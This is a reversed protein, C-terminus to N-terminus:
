LKIVAKVRWCGGASRNETKFTYLIIWDMHPLEGVACHHLPPTVRVESILLDVDESWDADLASRSILVYLSRKKTRKQLFKMRDKKLHLFTM